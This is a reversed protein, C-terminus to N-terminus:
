VAHLMSRWAFSLPYVHAQMTYWLILIAYQMSKLNSTGHIYFPFDFQGILIAKTM